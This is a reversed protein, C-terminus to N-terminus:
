APIGDWLNIDLYGLFQMDDSYWGIAARGGKVPPQEGTEDTILFYGCNARGLPHPMYLANFGGCTSITELEM